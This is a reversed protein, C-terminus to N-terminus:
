SEIFRYGVSFISEIYVPNKSSDGLKKRINKIHVDITREEVLVDQNRYIEDLLRIRSFVYGPRSALHQLLKFELASFHLLNSGQMVTMKDPNIILDKAKILSQEQLDSATTTRRLIARIRAILERPSFPKTIYDDAGSELGMIKEIEDAKATLMIIPTSHTRRITRLVSWGDVEPLMLDLVVLKPAVREFLQLGERGNLAVSVEYSEKELYMRILSAIREDDEIVLIHM